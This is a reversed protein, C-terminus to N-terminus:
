EDFDAEEVKPALYYKLNGINPLRYHVMLPLSDALGFKLRNCLTSAKCISILHRVSFSMSIDADDKNLLDIRTGKVVDASSGINIDATGIDGSAAISIKTENDVKSSSIRIQDAISALDKINKSIQGSSMQIHVSYQDDEPLEMADSELDMLKLSLDCKKNESLNELHFNIQDTEGDAKMTLVDDKSILRLMSIFNDLNIGLCIDEDCEFETFAMREYVVHILCVHGKDICQFSMGDQDCQLNIDSILDQLTELIKLFGIGDKFCARLM